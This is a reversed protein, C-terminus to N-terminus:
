SKKKRREVEAKLELVADKLAKQEAIRRIPGPIWFGVSVAQECTTKTKQKGVPEFTYTGEVSEVDGEVLKWDLRNPRQYRYELVYHVTRIKMDLEFEVTRALGDPYTDLVHTSTIVSSWNPYNPFDVIAEFCDEPTAAIETSFSQRAEAM